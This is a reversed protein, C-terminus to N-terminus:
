NPVLIEQRNSDYTVAATRGFTLSTHNRPASRITRLPTINGDALLPYVTASANGLNSVWLEQNTTDIAVGTPYTLATRDGRIARTPPVNGRVYALGTFVLISQDVDSAVYLDGNDPNLAMNGPWNLRTRDGQIVRLPPTDGDADLPYINIAPDNFRGTGPNRFSAAQGWTNVYLLQNRVDVAIGHPGELKTRDGKIVRLPAEDGEADKRFVVVEPPYERTMYLEGREEDVSISYVRHPTNLIRKPEVNGGADHAFVVMRDGTDSEVSYIDGNEPDIYIGNNFQIHTESGRIIRKPETLEANPPTNDLRNFIRTSWLNMDQLIIENTRVNVGVATYTPYTDAITRLHAATGQEVAEFLAERERGPMDEGRQLSAILALAANPALSALLNAPQLSPRLDPFSTAPQDWACADLTSFEQISVLRSTETAPGLASEGAVAAWLGVIGIASISVIVLAVKKAQIRRM